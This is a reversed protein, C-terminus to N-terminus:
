ICSIPDSSWLFILFFITCFDHKFFRFEAILFQLCDSGVSIAIIFIFLCTLFPVAHTTLCITCMICGVLLLKYLNDPLLLKYDKEQCVERMAKGLEAGSILKDCSSKIDLLVLTILVIYISYNLIFEVIGVHM